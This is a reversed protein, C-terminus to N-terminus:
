TKNNKGVLRKLTEYARSTDEENFTMTAETFTSVFDVIVINEWALARTIQYFLGVMEFSEEPMRVTIGSLNRLVKKVIKQPFLGIVKKEYKSNTIIMVEYIGQTITLFDGKKYDVVDYIKRIYEQIGENKYIVVQVLNSKVTIDSDKDFQATKVFTKELKESLRRISMNVASFKVKRKLLTEIEPVMESALAANNIIGRSLGEQIFPKESIIKEVAKM